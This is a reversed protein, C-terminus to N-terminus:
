KEAEGPNSEEEVSIKLAQTIRCQIEMLWIYEVPQGKEVEGTYIGLQVTGDLYVARCMVIGEIASYKDRVRDGCNITM